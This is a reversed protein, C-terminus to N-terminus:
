GLLYQEEFDIGHKKLFDEGLSHFAKAIPDLPEKDAKKTPENPAQWEGSHL